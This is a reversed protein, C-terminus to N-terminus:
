VENIGISFFGSPTGWTVASLHPVLGVKQRQLLHTVQDPNSIDVCDQSSRQKESTSINFRFTEKTDTKGNLKKNSLSFPFVLDERKWCIKWYLSGTELFIFNCISFHKAQLRKDGKLLTQWWPKPIILDTIFSPIVNFFFCLVFIQVTIHLESIFEKWVKLTQEM